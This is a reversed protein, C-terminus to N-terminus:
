KIEFGANRIGEILGEAMHHDVALSGGLWQWSESSVNDELWAVEESNSPIFLVVSGQDDITM